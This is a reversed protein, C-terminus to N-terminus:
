DKGVELESLEISVHGIKIRGTIKVLPRSPHKQAIWMSVDGKQQLEKGIFTQLDLKVADFTGASM